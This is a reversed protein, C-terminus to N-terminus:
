KRYDSINACYVVVCQVPSDLTLTQVTSQTSHAIGRDPRHIQLLPPSGALLKVRCHTSWPCNCGHYMFHLDSLVFHGKDRLDCACLACCGQNGHTSPRLLTSLHSGCIQGSSLSKGTPAAMPLLTRLTYVASNENTNSADEWGQRVCISPLTQM